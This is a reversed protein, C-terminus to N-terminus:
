YPPFNLNKKVKLSYRSPRFPSLALTYRCSRLPVVFTLISSFSIKKTKKQKTKKSKQKPQFITTTQLLKLNPPYHPKTGFRTKVTIGYPIVTDRNPSWESELVLQWQGKSGTILRIVKYSRKKRAVLVIYINLM